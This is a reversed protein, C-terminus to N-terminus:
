SVVVELFREMERPFVVLLVIHIERMNTVVLSVIRVVNTTRNV